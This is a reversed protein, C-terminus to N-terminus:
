LAASLPSKVAAPGVESSVSEPGTLLSGTDTAKLCAMPALSAWRVPVHLVVSVNVSEVVFGYPAVDAGIV